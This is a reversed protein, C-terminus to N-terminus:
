NQNGNLYRVIKECYKRGMGICEFTRAHCLFVAWKGKYKCLEANM